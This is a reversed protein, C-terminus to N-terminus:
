CMSRAVIAWHPRTFLNETQPIAFLDLRSFGDATFRHPSLPPTLSTFVQTPSTQEGAIDSAPVTREEVPFVPRGSERELVLLM